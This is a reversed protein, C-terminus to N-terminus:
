SKLVRTVEKLFTIADFPKQLFSSVHKLSAELLAVPSELGSTAIIKVEPKIKRVTKIFEAGDMVPMGLDVILLKFQDKNQAFKVLAEAGNWATIVKYNNEELTTKLMECIPAEDEAVLILEGNGLPIEERPSGAEIETEEIMEVAPLYIKFITGKGVESYVNIFGGHEKVITNVISLGLGTGKEPEKTTFFPDFIKDIIEQPIGVGTDEVTILIYPGPKIGPVQTAYHKDLTLNQAKIRLTGGHPM